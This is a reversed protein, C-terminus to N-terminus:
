CPTSKTDVLILQDKRQYCGTIQFYKGALYCIFKVLDHVVAVTGDIRHRMHIPIVYLSTGIKLYYLAAQRSIIM